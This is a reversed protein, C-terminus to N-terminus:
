HESPTIFEVIYQPILLLYVDKGDLQFEYKILQGCIGYMDKCENYKKYYLDM